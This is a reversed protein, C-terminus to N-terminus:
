FNNENVQFFLKKLSAISVDILITYGGENESEDIKFYEDTDWLQWTAYNYM